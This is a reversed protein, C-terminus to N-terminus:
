DREKSRIMQTTHYVALQVDDTSLTPPLSNIFARVLKPNLVIVSDEQLRQTREVFWGPFVVLAKVHYEMGTSLKLSERLWHRQFKAQNLIESGRDVGNEWIREGDYRIVPKGRAPKSHTKTEVTFIGRDSIIVHDLNSRETQLDHFIKAGDQAIEAIEEAVTREGDLGLTLTKGKRILSRTRMTAFVVAGIALITFLWPNPAFHLLYRVWELLALVVAFYAVYFVPMIKGGILIEREEVLGQGAQRLPPNSLPSKKETAPKNNM